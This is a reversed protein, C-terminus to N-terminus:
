RPVETPPNDRAVIDAVIGLAACSPCRHRIEDDAEKRDVTATLIDEPIDGTPAPLPSRHSYGRRLMESALEDHRQGLVKVEILRKNCLGRLVPWNERRITGAIMHTEVHEGLLHKRCLRSPKVMWMRM